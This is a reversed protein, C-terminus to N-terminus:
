GSNNPPDPVDTCQIRYGTRPFQTMSRWNGHSDESPFQVPEAPFLRFGNNPSFLELKTFGIGGNDPNDFLKDPAFSPIGPVRASHLSGTAHAAAVAITPNYSGANFRGVFQADDTQDGFLHKNYALGGDCYWSRANLGQGVDYMVPFAVPLLRQYITQKASLTLNTRAKGLGELRWGIEGPGPAANVRVAVASLKGYDSVLLRGIDDLNDGMQQYRAALDVGLKSAETTIQPGILNPSGDPHTFYAGVAFVGSLGAAIESFPPPAFGGIKLFVSIGGLIKSTANSGVPPKVANKIDQSIKGMDALAAVSAAGFPQQLGEPGVYRTVKSVMSVEDRLQARIGECQDASFGEHIGPCKREADSLDNQISPWDARYSQYYSKRIDCVPAAASCLKTVEPGGLFRQVAAAADDPVPQGKSDKFQPFPTPAQNSIEILENNVTTQGDPRVPAALMPEFGGDRSRMLVGRIRGPRGTLSYRAESHPASMGVRGVLAYPGRRNADEGNLPRPDTTNMSLFVQRTGGLREVAKAADDWAASKGRPYGYGQLIVLPRDAQDASAKLDAALRQVEGANESGPDINTRYVSEAYPELTRANLRLLHFGGLGTASDASGPNAMAFTRDGLRITTNSSAIQTATQNVETDFDVFDTYIFDYKGVVGNLRLMGVQNGIKAWEDCTTGTCENDELQRYAFTVYASGAPAGAVGVASGPAQRPSVLDRQRDTLKPAGIKQLVSDFANRVNTADQEVFDSWNLAVLYDQSGAYGDIVRGLAALSAADTRAADSRVLQLTSRDIVAYNVVRTRALRPVPTGNLVMGRDRTMTELPVGAPPLDPQATLVVTDTSTATAGKAAANGKPARKGKAGPKGKAAPKSGRVALRLRYRGPRDPVLGPVRSGARRLKAKSGRPASVIKWRFSRKAAGKVAFKSGRADLRVFGNATVTRDRGASALPAGRRLRFTKSAVDYSSQRRHAHTKHVLVTIKNKGFHLGDNAGLRGVLRRGEQAFARDVRRGNISM